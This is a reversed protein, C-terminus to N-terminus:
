CFAKQPEPSFRFDILKLAAARNRTGKAIGMGAGSAVPGPKSPYSFGVPLGAAALGHARGDWLPVVAIDGRELLQQIAGADAPQQVVSLDSSCVDSSWDCLSRTHRRRSSFFFFFFMLVYCSSAFIATTTKRM